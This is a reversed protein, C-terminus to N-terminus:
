NPDPHIRFLFYLWKEYINLDKIREKETTTIAATEKPKEEKVTTYKNFNEETTFYIM